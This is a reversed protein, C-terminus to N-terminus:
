KTRKPAIAKTQDFPKEDETGWTHMWDFVDDAAYTPHTEVSEVAADLEQLYVMRTALFAEVAQNIVYSRSRNTLEAFQALNNRTEESFRVTMPPTSSPM